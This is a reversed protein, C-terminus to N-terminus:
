ALGRIHHNTKEASSGLKISTVILLSAFAQPARLLLLGPPAPSVRGALVCWVLPGATCLPCWRAAPDCWVLSLVWLLCAFSGNAAAAFPGYSQPACMHARDRVKIFRASSDSNLLKYYSHLAENAEAYRALMKKADNKGARHWDRAGRLEYLLQDM